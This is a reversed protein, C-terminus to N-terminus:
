WSSVETTGRSWNRQRLVTVTAWVMVMCLYVCLGRLLQATVELTRRGTATQLPVMQVTGRHEKAGQAPRPLPTEAVVATPDRQM